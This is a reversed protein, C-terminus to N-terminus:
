ISKKQLKQYGNTKKKKKKEKNEHKRRSCHRVRADATTKLLELTQVLVVPPQGGGGGGRFPTPSAVWGVM